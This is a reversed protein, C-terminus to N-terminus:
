PSRRAHERQAPGDARGAGRAVRLGDLLGLVSRVGSEFADTSGAPATAVGCARVTAPRRDTRAVVVDVDAVASAPSRAVLPRLHAPTLFPLDCSAIVVGVARRDGSAGAAGVRDRRGSGRRPRHRPRAREGLPASRGRIAASSCSRTVDPPACRPQGGAGGDADRRGRRAGQRTGHPHEVRRTLVAGAVAVSARDDSAVPHGVPRAPAPVPPVAGGRRTEGIAAAMEGLGRLSRLFGRNTPEAWRVYGSGRWGNARLTDLGRHYGVRYRPTGSSRTAASIASRRGLRRPVPAVGAAVAAVAARREDEPLALAAALADADEADPAPLVTTPLGTSMHIQHDSVLPLTGIRGRVTQASGGDPAPRGGILTRGHESEAEVFRLVDRQTAAVANAMPAIAAIQIM